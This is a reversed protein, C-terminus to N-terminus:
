AHKQQQFFLSAAESVESCCYGCEATQAPAPCSRKQHLLDLAPATRYSRLVAKRQDTATLGPASELTKDPVSRFPPRAFELSTGCPKDTNSLMQLQCWICKQPSLM